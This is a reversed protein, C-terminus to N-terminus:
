RVEAVLMAEIMASGYVPKHIKFKYGLNLAELQPKIDFFDSENHYISILLVPRQQRITNQAGRLLDQEAGEVDTKILSVKLHNKKVYEDITVAPVSISAAYETDGRQYATSSSGSKSVHMDLMKEQDSVAFNEPIVNKLGNLEITQLLLKYNDPIAEFSYVSCDTYDSFILASDGIFAGADIINGSRVAALNEVLGLAHHDIFVSASFYNKPLYYGKEYGNYFFLSDTLQLINSKFHQQISDIKEQEETTFLEVRTAKGKLFIQRRRLMQIVNQVSTRDLGSILRQFREPFDADSEFDRDFCGQYFAQEFRIDYLMSKERIMQRNVKVDIQLKKLFDSSAEHYKETAANSETLASQLVRLEEELASIQEQNRSIGEDLISMQEQFLRASPPIFGNFWNESM